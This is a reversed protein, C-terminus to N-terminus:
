SRNTAARRDLPATFDIFFGAFHGAAYRVNSNATTLSDAMIEWFFLNPVGRKYPEAPFRPGITSAPGFPICCLWPFM